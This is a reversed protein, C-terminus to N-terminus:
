ALVYSQFMKYFRGRPRVSLGMWEKQKKWMQDIKDEFKERESRRKSDSYLIHFYREKGVDANLKHCITTGSARYARISYKPYDEFSGRQELVIESVM